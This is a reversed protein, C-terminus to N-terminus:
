ISTITVDAEPFGGGAAPDEPDDPSILWNRYLEHALQLIDASETARDYPRTLFAPFKHDKFKNDNYSSNMADTTAWVGSIFAKLTNTKVGESVSETIAADLRIVCGPVIMGKYPISTAITIM